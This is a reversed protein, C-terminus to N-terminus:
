GQEKEHMSDLIEEFWVKSEEIEESSVLHKREEFVVEKVKAGLSKFFNATDIIRSAPVWSDTMSGSIFIPMGLLSSDDEKTVNIEPGFLGGTFIVAGGLKRRFKFLYQSAVCAGQSFGVLFVNEERIGNEILKKVISEIYSLANDLHPQNKEIARLFSHPYWTKGPACALIWTAELIGVQQAIDFFDDPSQRRGHLLIVVKKGPTVKEGIYKSIYKDNCADMINM